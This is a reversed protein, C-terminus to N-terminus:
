AGFPTPDWYESPTTGFDMLEMAGCGCLVHGGRFVTVCENGKGYPVLQGPYVATIVADSPNYRTHRCVAPVQSIKAWDKAM